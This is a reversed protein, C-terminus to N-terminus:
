FNFSITLQHNTTWLQWFLVSEDLLQPEVAFDLRLKGTYNLAIVVLHLCHEGTLHVEADLQRLTWLFYFMNSKDMTLLQPYLYM